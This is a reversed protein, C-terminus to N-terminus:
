RFRKLFNEETKEQTFNFKLSSSPTSYRGAMGLYRGGCDHTKARLFAHSAVRINEGRGIPFKIFLLAGGNRTGM